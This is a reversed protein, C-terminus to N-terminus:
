RNESKRQCIAITSLLYRKSPYGALNKVEPKKDFTKGQIVTESGFTNECIVEFKGLYEFM